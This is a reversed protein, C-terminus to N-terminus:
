HVAAKVVTNVGLGSANTARRGAVSARPSRSKDVGLVHESSKLFSFLVRSM